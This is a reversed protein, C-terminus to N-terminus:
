LPGRDRTIVKSPPPLRIPTITSSRVASSRLASLATVLPTRTSVDVFVARRRFGADAVTVHHHFEVALLNAACPLKRPQDLFGDGAARHFEANHAIPVALGQVDCGLAAGETPADVTLADSAVDRAAHALPFRADALHFRAKSFELRAQALDFWPQAFELRAQTLEAEICGVNSKSKSKSCRMGPFM